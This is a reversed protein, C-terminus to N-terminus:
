AVSRLEQGPLCDVGSTLPSLSPFGVRSCPSHCFGGLTGGLVGCSYLREDGLSDDVGSADQRSPLVVILRASKFLDNRISLESVM